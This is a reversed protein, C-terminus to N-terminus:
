PSTKSPEWVLSWPGLQPIYEDLWWSLRLNGTPPPNKTTLTLTVIAKNGSNDVRSDINDFQYPSSPDELIDINPSVGAPLNESSLHFAYGNGLFTVSEVVFESPGLRVTQNLNWEQGVQPNDGADFPFQATNRKWINVRDV